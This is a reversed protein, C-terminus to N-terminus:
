YYTSIQNLLGRYRELLRHARGSLRFNFLMKSSLEAYSTEVVQYAQTGPYGLELAERLASADHKVRRAAVLLSRSGYWRRYRMDRRIQMNLNTAVREARYVLDMLNDRYYDASGIQPILLLGILLSKIIM